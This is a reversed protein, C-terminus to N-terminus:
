DLFEQQGHVDCIAGHKQLTKAEIQRIRERTVGFRRCCEELARLHGDRLGFRLEMIQRERKTSWSLALDIAECQAVGELAAAPSASDVGDANRWLNALTPLHSGGSPV